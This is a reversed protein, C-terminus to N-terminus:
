QMKLLIWYELNFVDRATNNLFGPLEKGQVEVITLDQWTLTWEIVKSGYSLNVLSYVYM